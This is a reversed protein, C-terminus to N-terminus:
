LGSNSFLPPIENAAKFKKKFVSLLTFFIHTKGM